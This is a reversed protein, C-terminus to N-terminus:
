QFNNILKSEMRKVATSGRQVVKHPTVIRPPVTNKVNFWEDARALVEAAQVGIAAYDFDVTSLPPSLMYDGPYGCYGMVAVDEPIELQLRELAAYVLIAYFDSFCMIATPPNVRDMLDEVVADIAASDMEPFRLLEPDPAVGSDALFKLYETPDLGRLNQKGRGLMGIAAIRYHGQDAIHSIGDLWAQRYDALMTAFGTVKGDTPAAHAILVPKQLKRLVKLEPEHGLYYNNQLVVGDYNGRKLTEVAHEEPVARLFDICLSQTEINMKECTKEFAPQIYSAPMETKGYNSSLLVLFRKDSKRGIGTRSVFTGKGPMRFILGVQELRRMASRLTIRGVGLERAFEPESPFKFGAQYESGLIKSKLEKFIADKKVTFPEM